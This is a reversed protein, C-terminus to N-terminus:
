DFVLNTPPEPQFFFKIEITSKQSPDVENVASVAFVYTDGFTLENDFSTTFKKELVNDELVTYQNDNKSKYSVIYHTIPRGGDTEGDQWTLEVQRRSDGVVRVV